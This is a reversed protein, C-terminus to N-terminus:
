PFFRVQRSTTAIPKEGDRLTVRQLQAGLTTPNVQYDLWVTLLDGPEQPPFSLVLNGDVSKEDVPSPELTNLTLGDM